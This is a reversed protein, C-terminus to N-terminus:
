LVVGALWGLAGVMFGAAGYFRAAAWFQTRAIRHAAADMERITSYPLHTM